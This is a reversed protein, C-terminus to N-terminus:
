IIGRKKDFGYDSIAEEIFYQFDKAKKWLQSHYIDVQSDAREMAMDCYYFGDENQDNRYDCGKHIQVDYEDLFYKANQLLEDEYYVDYLDDEFTLQEFFAELSKTTNTM